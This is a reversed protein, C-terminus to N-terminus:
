LNFINPPIICGADMGSEEGGAKVRSEEGSLIRKNKASEKFTDYCNTTFIVLFQM